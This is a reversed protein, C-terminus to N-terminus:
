LGCVEITVVAAVARSCGAVEWGLGAKSLPVAEATGFARLECRPKLRQPLNEKQSASEGDGLKAVYFEIAAALDSVPLTVHM